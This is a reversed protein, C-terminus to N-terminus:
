EDARRHRRAQDEEGGEEHPAKRAVRADAAGINLPVPGRGNCGSSQLFAADDSMDDAQQQPLAAAASQKSRSKASRTATSWRTAATAVNLSCITPCCQVLLAGFQEPSVWVGTGSSSRRGSSCTTPTSGRHRENKHKTASAKQRKACKRRV